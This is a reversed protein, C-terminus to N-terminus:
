SNVMSSSQEASAIPRFEAYRKNFLPAIGAKRIPFTHFIGLIPNSSYIRVWLLRFYGMEEICMKIM